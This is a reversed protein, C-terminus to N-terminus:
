NATPIKEAHDIVLVETPAKRSELKLGFKQIAIPASPKVSAVEFSPPGAGTQAVAACAALLLGLRTSYIM